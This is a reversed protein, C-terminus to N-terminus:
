VQRRRDRAFDAGSHAPARKRCAPLFDRGAQCWRAERTLAYATIDAMKQKASPDPNLDPHYKKAMERFKKKIDQTSSSRSCGLVEYPDKGRGSGTSFFRAHSKGGEQSGRQGAMSVWANHPLAGAERRLLRRTERRQPAGEEEVVSVARARSLLPQSITKAMKERRQGVASPLFSFDQVSNSAPAAAHPDPLELGSRSPGSPSQPAVDGSRAQDGVSLLVAPRGSAADCVALERRKFARNERDCPPEERRDGVTAPCPFIHPDNCTVTEEFLLPSGSFAEPGVRTTWKVNAAGAFLPEVVLQLQPLKQKQIRLFAEKRPTQGVCTPVCPSEERGQQKSRELASVADKQGDLTEESASGRHSTAFRASQGRNGFHRRRPSSAPPANATWSAGPRQGSPAESPTESVSGRSDRDIRRLSQGDAEAKMQLASVAKPKELTRSSEGVQLRGRSKQGLGSAVTAAASVSSVRRSASLSVLSSASRSLSLAPSVAPSLPSSRSLCTSWIGRELSGQAEKERAEVGRWDVNGTKVETHPSLSSVSALSAVTVAADSGLRRRSAFEGPRAHPMKKEGVSSLRRHGSQACDSHRPSLRPSPWGPECEGHDELSQLPSLSASASVSGNEPSPTSLARSPSSLPPQPFGSKEGSTWRFSSIRLSLARFLLGSCAAAIGSSALPSFFSGLVPSAHGCEGRSDRGRFARSRNSAVRRASSSFRLKQLKRCVRESDSSAGCGLHRSVVSVEAPARAPLSATRWRPNLAELVVQDRRLRLAKSSCVQRSFFALNGQVRRPSASWDTLGLDSSEARGEGSFSQSAGARPTRFRLWSRSVPFSSATAVSWLTSASSLSARQNATAQPRSCSLLPRRPRPPSFLAAPPSVTSYPRRLGGRTPPSVAPKVSLLRPPTLSSLFRSPLVSTGQTARSVRDRERGRWFAVAGRSGLWRGQRGEEADQSQRKERRRARLCPRRRSPAVAVDNSVAKLAEGLVRQTASLRPHSRLLLGRRTSSFALLSLLPSVTEARRRPVASVPARRVSVRSGDPRAAPGAPAPPPAGGGPTEAAPHAPAAALNPSRM